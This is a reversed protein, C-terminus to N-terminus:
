PRQRIKRKSNRVLLLPENCSLESTGKRRYSTKDSIPNQRSCMYAIPFVFQKCAFYYFIYIVYIICATAHCINLEPPNPSLPDCM